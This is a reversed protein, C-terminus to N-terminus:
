VEPEPGVPWDPIHVMLTRIWALCAQKEPFDEVVDLRFQEIDERLRGLKWMKTIANAAQTAILRQYPRTNVHAPFYIERKDLDRFTMARLADNAYNRDKYERYDALDVLCDDLLTKDLVRLRLSVGVYELCIRLGKWAEHVGEYWLLVTRIDRAPDAIGWEQGFVAPQAPILHGIVLAGDPLVKGTAQCLSYSGHEQDFERDLCYEDYLDCALNDEIHWDTTASTPSQHLEHPSTVALIYAQVLTQTEQQETVVKQTQRLGEIERRLGKVDQLLIDFKGETSAGQSTRPDLLLDVLDAAAKDCSDLQQKELPAGKKLEGEQIGRLEDPEKRYTRLREADAMEKTQLKNIEELFSAEEEPKEGYASTLM